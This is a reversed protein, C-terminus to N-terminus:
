VAKLGLKIAIHKRIEQKQKEDIQYQMTAMVGCVQLLAEDIMEYTRPKDNLYSLVCLEITRMLNMM